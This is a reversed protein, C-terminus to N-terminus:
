LICCGGLSIPNWEYKVLGKYSSLFFTFLSITLLLSLNVLVYGYLFKKRTITFNIGVFGILDYFTYTYLSVFLRSKTQKKEKISEHVSWAIEL